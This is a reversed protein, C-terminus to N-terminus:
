LSDFVEDIARSAALGMRIIREGEEEIEEDPMRYDRNELFAASMQIVYKEYGEADHEMAVGNDSMESTDRSGGISMDNLIDLMIAYHEMDWCSLYMCKCLGKHFFPYDSYCNLLDSFFQRHDSSVFLKRRDLEKICRSLDHHNM